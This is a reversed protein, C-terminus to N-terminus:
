LDPLEDEEQRNSTEVCLGRRRIAHVDDVLMGFAYLVWCSAFAVVGGLLALFGPGFRETNTWLIISALVSVICSIWALVQALVMISEGVKSSM